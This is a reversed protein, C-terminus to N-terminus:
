FGEGKDHNTSISSNPFPHIIKTAYFTPPNLICESYQVFNRAIQKEM